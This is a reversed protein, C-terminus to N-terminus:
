SRTMALAFNNAPMPVIEAREFGVKEAEAIV